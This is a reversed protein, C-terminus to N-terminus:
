INTFNKVTIKTIKVNNKLIISYFTNINFKILIKIKRPRRCFFLHFLKTENGLVKREIKLCDLRFSDLLEDRQGM